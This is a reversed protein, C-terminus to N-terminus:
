QGKIIKFSKILVGDKTQVRLFYAGAIMGSMEITAFGTKESLKKTVYTQGMFDSLIVYLEQETSVVYSIQLTSQVPNPAISINFTSEASIIGKQFASVLLTPQHFGQTYLRNSASVSEIAIEGLSWELTIGQIKSIGGAASILSPSLQQSYAIVNIFLGCIFPILLKKM